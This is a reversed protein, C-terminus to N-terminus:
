QVTPQVAALFIERLGAVCRRNQPEDGTTIRVLSRGGRHSRLSRLFVGRSLMSAVVREASVGTASTDVLVFNAECPTVQLGPLRSLESVLYEAGERLAELRGSQEAVDDLAALAAAISVTPLNWPVKVRSLLRIQAPHAVMFGVRLGALGYAKSFTRLVLANPYEAVLPAMTRGDDAFEVYAEDIVTPLGLALIRRLDAEPIRNGTPNNPTCLFIVKTRETIASILASVDFGADEAMPVLVPIGGVVRTRAEYMSFTPVSLLVEEGPAVFTRVVLDILEASGAGLLVYEADFGAREGLKRRLEGARAPYRNGGLAAEVIASLVRESPAFPSENSMMRALGAQREALAFHDEDYPKAARVWSPAFMEVSEADIRGAGPEDGLAEGFVRLMAEARAAADPTDVDIWRAEGVSCALFRGRRALAGVGESLSCDGTAAYVRELEELLAPGIRFVGTDIADYADLEKAIGTIRLGDLKVKTADDLDFCREIDYDVGLACAGRPIDFAQLRRVVEPSYLHDAMTLLCERDVFERAALLSVGNKQHFDLNEVFRLKLLLSPDSQLAKRISDGRDGVVVVAERIGETQLTRLIRVLLPVGAVPKLPKPHEHEAVLRSGRGAALVIARTM